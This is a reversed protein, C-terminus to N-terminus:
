IFKNDAVERIPVTGNPCGEGNLWMSKLNSIGTGKQRISHKEVYQKIEDYHVTHNKLSPHYFAPQKHFEVCNYVHGSKTRITKVPKNGQKRSFASNGEVGHHISWLCWIFIILLTTRLDMIGSQKHSGM